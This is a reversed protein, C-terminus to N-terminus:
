RRPITSTPTCAAAGQARAPRRRHPAGLTAEILDEIGLRVALTSVWLLAANAVLREDDFTVQIREIGRSILNM